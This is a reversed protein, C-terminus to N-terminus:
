SVGIDELMFESENSLTHGLQWHLQTILKEIERGSDWGAARGREHLMLSVPLSALWAGTTHTPLAIGLSPQRSEGLLRMGDSVDASNITQYLEEINGGHAFHWVIVVVLAPRVLLYQYVVHLFVYVAASLDTIGDLKESMVAIFYTIEARTLGSVLDDKNEFFSYLSSKAMGLEDAIREVTIGLFGHKIIVAMLASFFRNEEPLSKPDIVCRADYERKEEATLERIESWGNIIFNSLRDAFVGPPLESSNPAGRYQLVFYIITTFAYVGSINEKKSHRKGSWALTRIGRKGFEKAILPEIGQASSCMKKIVGFYEPKEALFRIITRLLDYTKISKGTKPFDGYLTAALDDFFRGKMEDFLTAKDKYHRFIAAKSIGVRKAINSLSVTPDHACSLEAFAETLIREKTSEKAQIM